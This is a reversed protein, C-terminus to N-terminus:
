PAHPLVPARRLLSAPDLTTPWMAAGSGEQASFRTGSSHQVHYCQLRGSCPPPTQLQTVHPLVM